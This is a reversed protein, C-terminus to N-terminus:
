NKLSPNSYAEAFTPHVVADPLHRHHEPATDLAVLVTGVHLSVLRDAPCLIRPRVAGPVQLGSERLPALTRKNMVDNENM